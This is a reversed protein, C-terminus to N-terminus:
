VAAVTACVFGRCPLTLAVSLPSPLINNLEYVVVMYYIKRMSCRTPTKLSLHISPICTTEKRTGVNRCSAQNGEFCSETSSLDPLAYSCCVRRGSREQCYDPAPFLIPPYRYFASPFMNLFHSLFCFHGQARNNILIKATFRLPRFM